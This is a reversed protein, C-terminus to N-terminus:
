YYVAVFYQIYNTYNISIVMFNIKIQLNTRGICIISTNFKIMLIM